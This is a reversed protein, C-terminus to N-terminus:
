GFWRKGIESHWKRFFFTDRLCAIETPNPPTPLITSLPYQTVPIKTHWCFHSIFLSFYNKRQSQTSPIKLTSWLWFATSPNQKVSLNFSFFKWKIQFTSLFVGENSPESRLHRCYGPNLQLQSGTVAGAAGLHANDPLQTLLPAVTEVMCEPVWICSPM